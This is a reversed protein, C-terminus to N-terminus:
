EWFAPWCVALPGTLARGDVLSAWTGELGAKETSFVLCCRPGKSRAISFGHPDRGRWSPPAHDVHLMVDHVRQSYTADVSRPRRRADSVGSKSWLHRGRQVGTRVGPGEERAGLRWSSSAATWTAAIPRGIEQECKGKRLVCRGWARHRNM